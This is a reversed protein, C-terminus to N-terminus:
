RNAQPSSACLAAKAARFRLLLRFRASSEAMTYHRTRNLQAAAHRGRWAIFIGPRQLVATATGPVSLAAANGLANRRPTRRRASNQKEIFLCM